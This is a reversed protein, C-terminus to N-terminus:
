ALAADLADLLEGTGKERIAARDRGDLFVGKETFTLTTGSGTAAFEVTTVSVSILAADATMTYGYVIREGPVIDQYTADYTYVPGGPPGGSNTETGGVKFELEYATSGPAGFWRSKAERTSWAAFVREPPLPYTRTLTFSGHETTRNTM